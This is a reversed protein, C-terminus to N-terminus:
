LALLQEVERVDARREPKGDVPSLPLERMTRSNFVWLEVPTSEENSSVADRNSVEFRLMPVTNTREGGYRVRREFQEFPIGRDHLLLAVDEPTDAAIHLQVAASPTVTGSLAAGVLRPGFQSLFNMAEVAIKRLHAVHRQHTAGGFLALYDRLAAEIEGNAPLFKGIPLNLREAAKRKATQFDKIDEEAM